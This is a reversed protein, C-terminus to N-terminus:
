RRGRRHWDDQEEIEEQKKQQELEKEKEINKMIQVAEEKKKASNPLNVSDRDWSQFRNQWMTEVQQEEQEQQETKNKFEDGIEDKISETEEFIIEKEEREQRTKAAGTYELKMYEDIQEPSMKTKNELRYKVLGYIFDDETGTEVIYDDLAKLESTTGKLGGTLVNRNNAIIEYLANITDVNEISELAKKRDEILEIIDKKTGDEHFGVQLIPYTKVMEPHKEIYLSARTDIERKLSMKDSEVISSIAEYYNEDYIQLKDQIKKFSYKKSLEPAYEKIICYAELLGYKEADNEKLLHYYNKKYFPEDLKRAVTELASLYREKNKTLLSGDERTERSISKNQQAHRIEHYITQLGRLFEGKNDSILYKIVKPSYCIKSYDEKQPICVATARDGYKKKFEEEDLIGIEVNQELKLQKIDKKALFCTIFKADDKSWKRKEKNEMLFKTAKECLFKENPNSLDIKEANENCWKILDEVYIAEETTNNKIKSALEKADM